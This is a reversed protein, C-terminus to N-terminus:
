RFEIKGVFRPRHVARKHYVFQDLQGVPVFARHPVFTETLIVSDGEAMFPIGELSVAAMAIRDDGVAQTWNVELRGRVNSISSVRLRARGEHEVTNEIFSVMLKLDAEKLGLKNRSLMDGVTFTAKESAQSTRFLDFVTVSGLLLVLLAPLLLAFEVASAGRRDSCFLRPLGLM